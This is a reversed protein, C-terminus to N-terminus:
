CVIHTSQGSWCRSNSEGQRLTGRRLTPIVGTRAQYTAGLIFYFGSRACLLYLIMINILSDASEAASGWIMHESVALLQHQLSQSWREKTPPMLLNRLM